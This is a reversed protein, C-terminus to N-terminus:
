KEFEVKSKRGGKRVDPLFRLRRYYAQQRVANVDRGLKQAAESITCTGALTKLTRLEEDSWFSGAQFRLGMKSAYKVLTTQHIGADLALRYSSVHNEIAYRVAAEVMEMEEASLRQGQRRKTM